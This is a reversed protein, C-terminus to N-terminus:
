ANHLKLRIPSAAADWRNLTTETKPKAVLVSHAPSICEDVVTVRSGSAIEGDKAHAIVRPGVDLAVSCFAGHPM